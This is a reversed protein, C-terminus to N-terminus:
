RVQKEKGGSDRFSYREQLEGDSRHVILDAKSERALDKAHEIAHAQDAFSKRFSEKRESIVVWKGRSRIVHFANKEARLRQLSAIIKERTEPDSLKLKAM